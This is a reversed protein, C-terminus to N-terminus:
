CESVVDGEIELATAVVDANIQKDEAITMAMGLTKVCRRPNNSRSRATLGAAELELTFGEAEAIRTLGTVTQQQTPPKLAIHTFRDLLEPMLNSPDITCIIIRCRTNESIRLLRDQVGTRNRHIEDIVFLHRRGGEVSLYHAEEELISIIKAGEMCTADFETYGHDTWRVSGSSADIAQCGSCDLCPEFLHRDTNKCCHRRGIIRATTGKGSGAPGTFALLKPLTRNAIGRAIYTNVNADADFKDALRRPQYKQLLDPVACDKTM